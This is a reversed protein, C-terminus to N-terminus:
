ESQPTRPSTQVARDMSSESVDSAAAVSEDASPPTGSTPELRHVRALRDLADYDFKQSQDIVDLQHRLLEIQALGAALEAEDRVERLVEPTTLHYETFAQKLARSELVMTFSALNNLNQQMERMPRAFFVAVVQAIGLGGTVATVKWDFRSPAIVSGISSVLALILFLSGSILLFVNARSIAEYVRISRRRTLQVYDELRESQHALVRRKDSFYPRNQEFPPAAVIDFENEVYFGSGLFAGLDSLGHIVEAGHLKKAFELAFLHRELTRSGCLTDSVALNPVAFRLNIGALLTAVKVDTYVGLVAVYVRPTSVPAPSSEGLPALLALPDALVAALEDVQASTGLVLVDLLRELDSPRLKGPQAPNVDPRFDSISDSHVHYIRVGGSSCFQARGDRSPPAPDLYDQLGDIYAAGWTGAECHRGHRRREEEYLDSPVHWDRINIVHLVGSGAGDKFRTGVTAELFLGLPGERLMKDMVRRRGDKVEFAVDDHDRKPVLLKKVEADGLYLKCDPNLFFDNQLCQTILIYRSEGDELGAVRDREAM